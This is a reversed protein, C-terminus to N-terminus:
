EVIVTRTTTTSVGANSATYTVTYTGVGPLTTTGMIIDANNTVNIYANLNDIATAGLDIYQPTTSAVAITSSGTLIISISTTTSVLSECEGTVTNLTAPSVCVPGTSGTPTQPALSGGVM